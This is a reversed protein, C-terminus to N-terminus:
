PIFIESGVNIEANVAIRMTTESQPVGDVVTLNVARMALTEAARMWSNRAPSNEPFSRAMAVADVTALDMAAAARVSMAADAVRDLAEDTCDVWVEWMHDALPDATLDRRWMPGDGDATLAGLHRGYISFLRVATNHLENYRSITRSTHELVTTARDLDLYPVISEGLAIQVNRLSLASSAHIFHPGLPQFTAAFLEFLAAWALAQLQQAEAM